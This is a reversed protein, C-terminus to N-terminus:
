SKLEKIVILDNVYFLWKPSAVDEKLCVLTPETEKGKDYEVTFIKDINNVVFNKYDTRLIEWDPNEKMKKYNFKVKTGEPISSDKDSMIELVKKIANFNEKSNKNKRSM